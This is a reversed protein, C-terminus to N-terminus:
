DCDEYVEGVGAEASEPDAPEGTPCRAAMADAWGILYGRAEAARPHVAVLSWFRDTHGAEVLHVLEHLLVYDLVWEPMGRLRTSLRIAGTAITCSGWRRRQNDAWTVSTPLPADIVRPLLYDAHLRRARVLLAQDTGNGRRRAERAHVRAVMDTLWREEEHSPIRQPMAIVIRGGERHASVTRSRRASRRVEVAEGAVYRLAASRQTM